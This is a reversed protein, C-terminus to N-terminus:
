RYKLSILENRYMRMAVNSDMNMLMNMIHFINVIIFRFIPISFWSPDSLYLSSTPSPAIVTKELSCQHHRQRNAEIMRGIVSAMYGIARQTESCFEWKGFM